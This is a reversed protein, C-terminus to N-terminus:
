IDSRHECNENAWNKACIVNLVSSSEGAQSVAVLTCCITSGEPCVPSYGRSSDRMQVRQECPNQLFSFCPIIFFNLKKKQWIDKWVYTCPGVVKVPPRRSDSVSGHSSEASYTKATRTELISPKKDSESHQTKKVNLKQWTLKASNPKQQAQGWGELPWVSTMEALNFELCPVMYTPSTHLKRLETDSCCLNFRHILTVARNCSLKILFFCLIVCRQPILCISGLPSTEIRRPDRRKHM